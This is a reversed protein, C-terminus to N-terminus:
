WYQYVDGSYANVGWIVADSAVAVLTGPFWDWTGRGWDWRYIQGAANVGWPTGAMGISIQTLNGGIPFFVAGFSISSAVAM